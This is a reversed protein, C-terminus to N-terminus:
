KGERQRFYVVREVMNNIENSHDDVNSSITNIQTSAESPFYTCSFLAKVASTGRSEWYEPGYKAHTHTSM